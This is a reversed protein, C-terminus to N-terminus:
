SDKFLRTKELFAQVSTFAFEKATTEVGGDTRVTSAWSQSALLSSDKMTEIEEPSYPALIVPKAGSTVAGASIKEALEGMTLSEVALEIARGSYKEPDALVAAAVVGADSADIWGLKADPPIITRLVHSDALGPHIYHSLPPALNQLFHAPRLLVWHRFGAGRVLEEIQNKVFWYRYMPYDPGWGPFSEHDGTRTATSCIILPVSAKKAAAIFNRTYKVDKVVNGPPQLYVADMGQTARELSGVDEFSGKILKAGIESLAKAAESNQNRVFAYVDHGRRLSHRVVGGGQTGTAGTVLIKRQSM